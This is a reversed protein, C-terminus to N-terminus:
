VTSRTSKFMIRSFKNAKNDSSFHANNEKALLQAIQNATHKAAWSSAISKNSFRHNDETSQAIFFQLAAKEAGGTVKGEM